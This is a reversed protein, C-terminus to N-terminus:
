TDSVWWKPEQGGFIQKLVDMQALTPRKAFWNPRSSCIAIITGGSEPLPFIQRNDKPPPRISAGQPFVSKIKVRRVGSKEQLKRLSDCLLLFDSRPPDPVYRRRRYEVKTYEVLWEETTEFGYYMPRGYTNTQPVTLDIPLDPHKDHPVPRLNLHDLSKHLLKAM